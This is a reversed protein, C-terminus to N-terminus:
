RKVEKKLGDIADFYDGVKSKLKYLDHELNERERKEKEYKEKFELYLYGSDLLAKSSALNKTSKKVDEIMDLDKQETIRITIVAM